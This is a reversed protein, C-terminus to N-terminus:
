GSKWIAVIPLKNYKRIKIKVFIINKKASDTTCRYLFVQVFLIEILTMGNSGLHVLNHGFFHFNFNTSTLQVRGVMEM